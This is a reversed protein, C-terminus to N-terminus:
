PDMIDEIIFPCIIGLCALGVGFAACAAMGYWDPATIALSYFIILFCVIVAEIGIIVFTKIFKAM